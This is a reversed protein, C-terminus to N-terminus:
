DDTAQLKTLTTFGAEIYASKGDDTRALKYQHILAESTEM